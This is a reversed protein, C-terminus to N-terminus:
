PNPNNTLLLTANMPGNPSELILHYPGPALPRVNIVLKDLSGVQEKLVLRGFCDYLSLLTPTYGTTKWTVFCNEWAPNPALKILHQDMHPEDVHSAMDCYGPLPSVCIDDVYFYACPHSGLPNVLEPTAYGDSFFNGVALYAYASDPVYTDSLLYWISTNNPATIMSMTAEDPLPGMQDYWMPIMTFRMGMGAISYKMNEQFGDIALAIKMSLYVPVGPTLPEDLAVSLLERRNAPFECWAYGGAYGSGTAAYQFGVVNSPVDVFGTVDCEHFFDPSLGASTWGSARELQNWFDPCSDFQEFSGNPVLNQAECPVLGMGRIVLLVAVVKMRPM